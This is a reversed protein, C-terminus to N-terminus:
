GDNGGRAGGGAAAGERSGNGGRRRQGCGAKAVLKRWGVPCRGAVAAEKVKLDAACCTRM